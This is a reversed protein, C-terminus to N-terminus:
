WYRLATVVHVLLLVSVAVSLGIHIPLWGHLWHHLRKQLDFQRRQDCYEELTGIIEVCAPDCIRRLNAFFSGARAPNSFVPNRRGGQLLYEQMEYYANWIESANKPDAPFTATRLTRGRVRGVDRVAGVVVASKRKPLYKIEESVAEETSLEISGASSAHSITKPPPGFVNTLLSYADSVNRQCVLDIQSYITEATVQKFLLKPIVNQLAWGYIGSLITLTFLIMFTAPLMGGLHFGSHVVAIPWSALGFWLHAALWQRAAFLRWARFVKRPWLLMEFAIISGAVFGCVLGPLSGGRLWHGAESSLVCYWATLATVLGLAPLAWPLHIGLHQKDLKLAESSTYASVEFGNKPFFEGRM